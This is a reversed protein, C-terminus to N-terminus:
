AALQSHVVPVPQTANERMGSMARRWERWLDRLFKKMMIRLADNRAHMKTWDPHTIATHERRKVYAEGYVGKGRGFTTGSKEASEVQAKSLSDAIVYMMAYRECAFPHEVWEASSLARPRWTERRWTSGAHGEFPAFGLRSWLHGETPYNSLDGAEGIITAVGLAGAGKVGELWEAVDSANVYGIMLKEEIKRQEDWPERSKDLAFVMKRVILADADTSEPDRAAKLIASVRANCKAAEEKPLDPSWATYNCRIYSELSRDLKQQTKMAFRRRRHHLRIIAVTM